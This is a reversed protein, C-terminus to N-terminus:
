KAANTLRHHWRRCGTWRRRRCSRLRRWLAGALSTDTAILRLNGRLARPFKTRGYGFREVARNIKECEAGSLIELYLEAARARAVLGTAALGLSEPSFKRRM